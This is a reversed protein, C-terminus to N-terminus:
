RKWVSPRYGLLKVFEERGVFTHLPRRDRNFSNVIHTVEDRPPGGDWSGSSRHFNFSDPDFHRVVDYEEDIWGATPAEECYIEVNPCNFVINAGVVKLGKPLYLYKLRENGAFAAGKVTHVSDPVVIVELFSHLCFHGGVIATGEPFEAQSDWWIRRNLMQDAFLEGNETHCLFGDRVFYDKDEIEM